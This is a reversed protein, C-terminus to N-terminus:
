PHQKTDQQDDRRDPRHRDGHGQRGHAQENRGAERRDACHIQQRSRFSGGYKQGMRVGVSTGGITTAKQKQASTGTKRAPTGTPTAEPVAKPANNTRLATM